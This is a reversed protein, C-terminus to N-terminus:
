QALCHFYFCSLSSVAECQYAIVSSLTNRSLYFGEKLFTKFYRFIFAHQEPDAALFALFLFSLLCPFRQYFYFLVVFHFLGLVGFSPKFKLQRELFRTSATGFICVLIGVAAIQLERRSPGRGKSCVFYYQYSAKRWSGRHVLDAPPNLRDVAAVLEVFKWM